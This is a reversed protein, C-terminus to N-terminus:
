RLTAGYKEQLEKLCSSVQKEINKDELTKNRDRFTVTVAISKNGEGLQQANRYVDFVKVNECLPLKTFCDVVDQAAVEEKMVLAFDRDISPFKAFPLYRFTKNAKSAVADIRIEAIYVDKVFSFNEAVEPHVKGLVAVKEEGM